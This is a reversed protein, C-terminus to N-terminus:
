RFHIFEQTNFMSHAMQTWASSDSMIDTTTSFSRVADAWRRVEDTQPERGLAEIFMSRIRGEPTTQLDSMLRKAWHQALQNTLPDNLMVLAQTPVSTVNRRGNPLKLDPLDFTSLFAPPAMISMTMYLSRRGNGDVPGSFLRKSGDEVARPPNIPRGYLSPDLRGSVALMSDRISEAEMRRTPFHHFLRNSPDLELANPAALGSERFTQTMVLERIFRKTSWEHDVFDRALWDLLLPNSPKDGLRGFNDPTNVLGSGFIWGWIRNVYVRSTLPHGPQILSQALELRGSGPSKAVDNRGAFIQLFDPQVLEGLSDVNGRSNFHLGARVTQREDMGNSTRPFAIAQEIRRYDAVLKALTDGSDSQNPLLKNIILWDLIELDGPKLTNNCWRSVAGSLWKSLRLNLEDATKPAPAIPDYLTSFSDLTEQPAGATDHTVIGTIGLWSRKDYGLDNNPLGAALGTRPPFNPNLSATSFEVTVRTVGNKMPKDAFMCWQPQTEKLFVVSEGQFANSDSTLYGGYEGGALKLSSFQGPVTDLPPMRLAGPLKSSLAQTHYGAPLLRAIASNGELAVLPTGDPVWGHAMGEGETVWGKPIEPTRFDTLVKFAKNAEMRAQRANKWENALANWSAELGGEAKTLRVLPYAIQDITPATANKQALIPKLLEPTPKFQSWRNAMESRIRSRLDKLAAIALANKDPTDISRSTWRPTMFVAGLAYYDRQSVAELKHDHCRACAVTTALFVKSFADVKNNIMEQHIGNFDLSSGHRHEGLHYFMTGILSENTGTSTNIRPKELLDGALQEKLFQDFGIDSNFARILYDRYEHSGKAPNDWEYGYTDTYRVSDMWHRAFREGFHPSTLMQDVLSEYARGPNTEWDNLFAKRQAPSPPLGTLIFSLRRLLVESGAVPAPKIGSADLSARIFRDVPKQSWERNAVQPPQPNQLPKLSWWDLRKRFTEPWGETSTTQASAPVQTRTDIAGQKVWDTLLAIEHDALKKKPPMQLEKDAYRVAKILASEDPHGPVIVEGADGGKLWGPKSDLRLGGKASKEGHCKICNEVLLPRIKSEFFAEKEPTSVVTDAAMLLGNISAILIGIVFIRSLMIDDKEYLRGPLEISM